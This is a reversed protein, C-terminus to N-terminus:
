EIILNKIIKENNENKMQVIYTGAVLKSVDIDNNDKQLMKSVVKRGLVDFLTVELQPTNNFKISVVGKAPNPYMVIGLSNFTQTELVAGETIGCYQISWSNLQGDDGPYSDTITLTWTGISSEENFASLLSAPIVIGSIAPSGELCSLAEGSDDFTVEMDDSTACVEEVLTVTTGSPSVLAITLDGLYTHTLSITVNIDSIPIDKTIEISSSVPLLTITEVPTNNEGIFCDIVGTSFSNGLTFVGDGCENKPKIRWYYATSVSLGTSQTYSNITTTGTEVIEQFDADKAVEIDYSSTLGSTDESWAYTPFTSQPASENDPSNLVPVEFNTGKITLIVDITKNETASTGQISITYDQPTAATFGSVTMTVTEQETEVISPSFTATAGAPLGTANFSVEGSYDASFSYDFTFTVDTITNECIKKISEIATLFFTPTGVEAIIITANSVDLFVNDAAAIMLRGTTTLSIPVIIDESGDNSTNGILTVTDTFDGLSSFLIDVTQCNVTAKNDTGAVNWTITETDGQIWTTNINQSTVIFPGADSNSTIQILDDATQGGYLVNDRVTLAFEFDRTVEPLVEWTTVLNNDLIASLQPFYRSPSITGRRSRFMPGADATAIPLLPTQMDENDNQEWTYTLVDDSDPDTGVGTLKFATGVPIIYDAGANATPPLNAVIIEDFCESSVGKQINASIDRINVYNFYDDSQDAVDQGPCIGAYGMISSGSGPEVETNNGSKGCLGVGNHTHYGGMQHGIEHAVYDVDFKDGTPNERGTHGSGKNGSNCVCGICGANGGGSTNFNHGIDYNDDGILEDIVEQTKDNYEGDFPDTEADFFIINFNEPVLQFTIGLEKEYIGNVRTMTVIMQAMINAKKDEDTAADGIFLAGYEGTCSMALEYLRITSDDTAKFSKNAPANKAKEYITNDTECSFIDSSTNVLDAASYAIYVSKDKTYPDIYYTAKGPESIQGHFGAQSVSFRIFKGTNDISRGVYSKINPLKAALEPHLIQTDYVRYNEITGDANPVAIINSSKGLFVSRIPANQLKSKIGEINVSYLNFETPMKDKNFSITNIESQASASVSIWESKQQQAFSASFILCFLLLLYFTNKKNM